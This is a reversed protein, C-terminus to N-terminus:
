FFTGGIELSDGSNHIKNKQSYSPLQINAISYEATAIVTDEEIGDILKNKTETNTNFDKQSEKETPRSEKTIDQKFYLCLPNLHEKNIDKGWYLNETESGTIQIRGKM